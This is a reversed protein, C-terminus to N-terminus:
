GTDRSFVSVRRWRGDDGEGEDGETHFQLLPRAEWPGRGLVRISGATLQVRVAPVPLLLLGKMTACPLQSSVGM